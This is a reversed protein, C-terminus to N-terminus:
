QPEVPGGEQIAAEAVEPAAGSAGASVAVENFANARDPILDKLMQATEDPLIGNDHLMDVFDEALGQRVLFQYAATLMLATKVNLVDIGTGELAKDLAMFGAFIGANGAPNLLDWWEDFTEKDVDLGMAGLVREFVQDRIGDNAKDILQEQSWDQGFIRGFREAVSGNNFAQDWVATASAGATLRTIGTFVRSLLGRRAAGFVLRGVLPLVM